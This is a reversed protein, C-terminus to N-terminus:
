DALSNEKGNALEMLQMINGTLNRLVLNFNMLQLKVLTTTQDVLQHRQADIHKLLVKQDVTSLM